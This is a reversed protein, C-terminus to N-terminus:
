RECKREAAGDGHGAKEVESEWYCLALAHLSAALRDLDGADRDDIATPSRESGLARAPSTAHNTNYNLYRSGRPRASPFQRVARRDDKIQRDAAARSAM